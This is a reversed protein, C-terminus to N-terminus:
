VSAYGGPDDDIGLEALIDARDIIGEHYARVMLATRSPQEPAEDDHPVPEDSM